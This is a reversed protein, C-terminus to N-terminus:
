TSDGTRSAFMRSALRQLRPTHREVLWWFSYAALLAGMCVAAHVLVAGLSFAMRGTPSLWSVALVVLPLHVAYLSYSVKAMPDFFRELWFEPKKQRDTSFLILTPVFMAAILLDIGIIPLKMLSLGLAALFFTVAIARRAPTGEFTVNLTVWAAGAGLLWVVFLQLGEQGLLGGVVFVGVVHIARQVAGLNHDLLRYLLPFLAYYWFEYSLSWLAGNSGFTPLWVHQLFLANGVFISLSVNNLVPQAVITSGSRGEYYVAGPSLHSGIMDAVLTLTLAPILVSSLRTVRKIMYTQYTWGGPGVRLLSGGVFFGSLAIFVVVAQHGLATAGYWLAALLGQNNWDEVLLSRAHGAVVAFAALARFLDLVALKQSPILKM